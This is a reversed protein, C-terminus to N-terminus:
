QRTPESIHILSLEDAFVLYPDEPLLERQERLRQLTNDLQAMDLSQEGSLEISARAHRKGRILDLSLSRQAVSGAQRIRNHNMRVFDSDEGSFGLLLQEDGQLKSFLADSLTYFYDQMANPIVEATM